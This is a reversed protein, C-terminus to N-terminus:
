RGQREGDGRFGLCHFCLPQVDHGEPRALGVEVGGIIYDLRGLVRKVLAHGLVRGHGARDFQALRDAVREFAIVAQVVRGILYHHGRAALLRQAVGALSYDVGAVLDYQGRRVPQGIGLEDLHRAALAYVDM